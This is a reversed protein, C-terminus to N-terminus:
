NGAQYGARTRIQAKPYRRKAAPSLEVRLRRFVGPKADPPMAFALSYRTRLRAILPAFAEGAREARFAEGGTRQAVSFVDSPSFDPNGGAIARVSRSKGVVIANVVVNAASLEQVAQDETILHNLSGGDTLMLLARRGEPPAKAFEAAADLLAAHIATGAPMKADLVAVEIERAAEPFRNSFAHFVETGKSFVMVGARDQPTLQGLAQRATKGMQELYLKMSGSVDLLLLVTVPDADHGFYTLPQRTGEDFIVFDDKTLGTVPRNNEVVQADVRVQVVSTRFTM